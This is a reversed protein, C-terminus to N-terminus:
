AALLHLDCLGDLEEECGKAATSASIRAALEEGFERLEANVKEKASVFKVGAVGESLMQVAWEYWEKTGRLLPGHSTWSM